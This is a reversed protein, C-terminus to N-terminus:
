WTGAGGERRSAFFACLAGAKLTRAAAAAGAAAGDEAPALKMKQLHPPAPLKTASSGQLWAARHMIHACLSRTHGSHKTINVSERGLKLAM